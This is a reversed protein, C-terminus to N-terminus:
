YPRTPESIHILSLLYRYTASQIPISSLHLGSSRTLWQLNRSCLCHLCFRWDVLQKGRDLLFIDLYMQSYSSQNCEKTCAYLIHMEKEFMLICWILWFLLWPQLTHLPHHRSGPILQHLTRM